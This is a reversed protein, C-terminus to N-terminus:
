EKSTVTGVDITQGAKLEFFIYKTDGSWLNQLVDSPSWAILNYNGPQVDEFLFAGSSDPLAMIQTNDFRGSQNASILLNLSYEQVSKGGPVQLIGKITGLSSAPTSSAGSTAGSPATDCAAIFFMALVFVLGSKLIKHSNM